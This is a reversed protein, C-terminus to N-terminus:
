LDPVHVGKGFSNWPLRLHSDPFHKLVWQVYTNSNPGRILRYHDLYPYTVRSDEIFQAMAEAVKGEIFGVMRSGAWLYRDTFFYKAIGQTPEHFNKHLHGWRQPWAQPRWFIEWRSIRGKLNVV